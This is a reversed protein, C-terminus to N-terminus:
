CSYENGAILKILRDNLKARYYSGPQTEQGRGRSFRGRAIARGNARIGGSAVRDLENYQLKGGDNGWTIGAAAGDAIM